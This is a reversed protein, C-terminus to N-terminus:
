SYVSTKAGDSTAPTADEAPRPSVTNGDEDSCAGGCLPYPDKVTILRAARKRFLYNIVWNFTVVVRNDFEVLYMVHIGVWLFWAAFGTFEFKGVKAVAKNKGIVAMSGKDLYRFPKSPKNALRAKLVGAIYAGEQMAVPAVGPLPQGTQHAYHALDGAVFVNPYGPLALQEDVIVRGVRDLEAGSADALVQGLRSAKVGAAWLVTRANLDFTEGNRNKVTVAEPQIDTVLSQPIVEVQLDKLDKMASKSLKGGYVPLVGDSGEVIIIRAKSADINRFDPRMTRSALEAISGALEVGTPGGGVIVFTLWAKQKAPDTEREAAEFALLVRHRMDVADELTKLGPAVAAFHENGFYHHKSGTAIILSDFTQEGDRLVLTKATLDVGVVEGMIVRTNKAHRLVLRLPSAIESPSLGGTAVQYLLPQFLHFNRKDILTVQIGPVNALQKAAYLGGFGGGVIVVHHPSAGHPHAAATPQATLPDTTSVIYPTM